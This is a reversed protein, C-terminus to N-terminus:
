QAPLVGENVLQQDQEPTLQIPLPPGDTEGRAAKRILEMNYEQLHKALAEGQLKPPEMQQLREQRRRKLREIYSEVPSAVGKSVSPLRSAPGGSSPGPLTNAGAVPGGSLSLWREEGDKKVLASELEYDADVIAVGDESEGPAMYYSKPPNAAIDVLGVRIGFVTDTIGVMRLSKFPDNAPDRPPPTPRVPEPPMGFPKRAKIVQYRAPDNYDVGAADVGAGLLCSLILIYMWYKM